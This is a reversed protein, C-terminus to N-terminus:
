LELALGVSVTHHCEQLGLKVNQLWAAVQEKIAKRHQQQQQETQQWDM